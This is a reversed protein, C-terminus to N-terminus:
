SSEPTTIGKRKRPGQQSSFDKKREGRVKSIRFEINRWLIFFEVGNGSSAVFIAISRKKLLFHEFREFQGLKQSSVVRTTDVNSNGGSGPYQSFRRQHDKLTRLAAQVKTGLRLIPHLIRRHM